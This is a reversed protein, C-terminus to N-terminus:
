KSLRSFLCNATVLHGYLGGIDGGQGPDLHVSRGQHEAQEGGCGVQVDDVILIPIIISPVVQHSYLSRSFQFSVRM